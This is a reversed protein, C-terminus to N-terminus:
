WKINEVIIRKRISKLAVKYRGSKLRFLNELKEGLTEEKENLFEEYSFNEKIIEIVNYFNESTFFIKEEPIESLSVLSLLAYVSKNYKYLDNDKIIFLQSKNPILFNDDLLQGLESTNVDMFMLLLPCSIILKTLPLCNNKFLDKIRKLNDILIADDTILNNKNIKINPYVGNIDATLESCEEIIVSNIFSCVFLHMIRGLSTRNVAKDSIKSFSSYARTIIKGLVYPPINKQIDECFTLWNNIDIKFKATLSDEEKIVVNILFDSSKNTEYVNTFSQIQPFARIHSYDNLITIIDDGSQKMRIFDYISSLLTFFSYENISNNNTQSESISLPICAIAKILPSFFENQLVVDFRDMQSITAKKANRSFGRIVEIGPLYRSYFLESKIIFQGRCFSTIFCTILRLDKDAYIGSINALREFDSYNNGLLALINRMYAIRIFYDFIYNISESIKNSLFLSMFTLVSNIKQNEYIPQLQYGESLLNQKILFKLIQSNICGPNYSLLNANINNELLEIYFVNQLQQSDVYFHEPNVLVESFVKLFSLLTRLSLTSVFTEFAERQYPNIIGFRFFLRRLFEKYELSFDVVSAPLSSNCIVIKETQITDVVKVRRNHINVIYPLKIRAVIPFIKKLYEDVMSSINNEVPLKKLLENKVISSLQNFDTSLVTIISDSCIHKRITELLPWAISPDTDIDDVLLLFKEKKLIKLGLTLLETFRERLYFASNVSELDKLFISDASDWYEPEPQRTYISPIGKSLSVLHEDWEKRLASYKNDNHIENLSKIVLQNIQSLITVFVHAKNEILTPDLIPLICLSEEKIDLYYKMSSLFTTKGCGRSGDILITNYITKNFETHKNSKKYNNILDFAIQLEFNFLQHKDDFVHQNTDQSLDIDINRFVSKNM